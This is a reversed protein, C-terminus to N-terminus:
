KKKSAALEILSDEVAVELIGQHAADNQQFNEYFDLRKRETVQKRLIALIISRSGKRFGKGSKLLGGKDEVILIGRPTPVMRAKGQAIRQRLQNQTYRRKGSPGRAADTLVTLMKGKGAITGGTQFVDAATWGTYESVFLKTFDSAKAPDTAKFKFSKALGKARVNLKGPLRERLTEIDYRGIERFGEALGQLLLRPSEALMQAFGEIKTIDISSQFSM